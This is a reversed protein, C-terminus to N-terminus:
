RRGGIFKMLIMGGIALAAVPVVASLVGGFGFSGAGRSAGANIAAVDAATEQKARYRAVDADSQVKFVDVGTRVVKDLLDSWNPATSDAM